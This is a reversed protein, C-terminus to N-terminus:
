RRRGYGLAHGAKGLMSRLNFDAACTAAYATVEDRTGRHLGTIRAQGSSLVYRYWDGNGGGDPMAAREVLTVQYHHRQLNSPTENDVPSAQDMAAKEPATRRNAVPSMTYRWCVDPCRRRTFTPAVHSYAVGIPATFFPDPLWSRNSGRPKGPIRVDIPAHLGGLGPRATLCGGPM